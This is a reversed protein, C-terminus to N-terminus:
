YIFILNMKILAFYFLCRGNEEEERLEKEPVTM